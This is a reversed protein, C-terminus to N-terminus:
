YPLPAHSSSYPYQAEWNSAFNHASTNAATREYYFINTWAVYVHQPVYQDTCAYRSGIRHPPRADLTYYSSACLSSTHLGGNCCIHSSNSGSQNARLVNWVIRYQNIAYLGHRKCAAYWGFIGDTISEGDLPM